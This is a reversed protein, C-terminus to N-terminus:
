PHAREWTKYEALMAVGEANFWAYGNRRERSLENVDDHITKDREGFIPKDAGIQYFRAWIPGAGSVAVLMRGQPSRRDSFFNGSGYRYGFIEVKRFWEAADRVAAIEAPMPDPLSMFFEVVPVSEDSTLAPMEYNRASTPELTLADYQQAWGTKVRGESIQLRLLCEIGREAAPRARRALRQPLSRYDPAGDAVDRLIEIAHLMADDNITIADHYLGELPWVQPWGGNPYQANLLYEVGREVAARFPAADADRHAALLATAVHALFRIQMWTANNDLTAIYNWNPDLPADFDGPESFRNLNDTDYRGGPARPGSTMDINKSWGGDPIQYSVMNHAIRLADASAYWEAPHQGRMGFGFGHPAYKPDKVGAAEAENKLTQKDVAQQNESRALYALWAKQEKKPLTATIRERTVSKAIANMGIVKASVAVPLSLSAIASLLFARLAFRNFRM